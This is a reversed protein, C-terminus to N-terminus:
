KILIIIVSIHFLLFTGFWWGTMKRSIPEDIFSRLIPHNLGGLRSISSHSDWDVSPSEKPVLISSSPSDGDYRIHYKNIDHLVKRYHQRGLFRESVIQVCQPMISIRIDMVWFSQLSSHAWSINLNLFWIYDFSSNKIVQTKLCNWRGREHVETPLAGLQNASLNSSPVGLMQMHPDVMKHRKPLNVKVWAASSTGHQSFRAPRHPDGIEQEWCADVKSNFTWAFKMCSGFVNSVNLCVEHLEWLFESSLIFQFSTIDPCHRALRHTSAGCELSQVTLAIVM